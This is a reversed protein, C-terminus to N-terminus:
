GTRERGGCRDDLRKHGEAIDVGGVDDLPVGDDLILDSIGRVVARVVTLRDVVLYGCSREDTPPARRNGFQVVRRAVEGADIARSIAVADDHRGGSGERRVREVDLNVSHPDHLAPVRRERSAHRVRHRCLNVESAPLAIITGCM